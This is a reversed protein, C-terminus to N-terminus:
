ALYVRGEVTSVPVGVQDAVERYSLEELHVLLFAERQEPALEKVARWLEEHEESRRATPAASEPVPSAARVRRRHDVAIRSVISGLWGAFASPDRLDDLHRWARVFTEQAIEEAEGREGVLGLAQAYVRRQFQGVLDAFAERKGARADVVLEVLGM